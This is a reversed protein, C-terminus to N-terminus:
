CSIALGSRQTGSRQTGLQTHMHMCAHLCTCLGTCGVRHLPLGDRTLNQRLTGCISAQPLLLFGEFCEARSNIVSHKSLLISLLCEPGIRELIQAQNEAACPLECSKTLGIGPSETGEVPMQPCWAHLLFVSVHLCFWGYM